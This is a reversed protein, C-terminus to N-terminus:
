IDIERGQDSAANRPENAIQNGLNELCQSIKQNINIPSVLHKRELELIQFVTELVNKSYENFRSDLMECKKEIVRLLLENSNM